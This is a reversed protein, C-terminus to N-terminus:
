NWASVSITTTSSFLRYLNIQAGVVIRVAAVGGDFSPASSPASTPSASAGFVTRGRIWVQRRFVRARRDADRRGSSPPPTSATACSGNRGCSRKRGCRRKRWQPGCRWKRGYRWKRGDWNSRSRGDGNGRNRWSRRNRRFFLTSRYIHIKMQYLLYVEQTETIAKM